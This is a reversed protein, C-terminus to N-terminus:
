QLESFGMQRLAEYAVVAVANSLNLSRAGGIMPIRISTDRNAALIYDPLGATERGFVLMDGSRYIVESYHRSAKTTNYYFTHGSYEELVAAFSEHYHVKVLHWYDLGARKLARDDVAFGLPKVLHLECGTAACLRSINGTNGPIEPEVLVVHLLRDGRGIKQAKQYLM